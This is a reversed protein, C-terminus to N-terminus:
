RPKFNLTRQVPQDRAIPDFAWRKVQEVMCSEFAANSVGLGQAAVDATTGKPTVTYIIRWKGALFEDQKLQQEYCAKLKGAQATMREDVMQRIQDPDTLTGARRSVSQTVGMGLRTGGTPAPSAMPAPEPDAQAVGDNEATPTKSAAKPAPDSAVTSPKPGKPGPTQVQPAPAPAEAPAELYSIEIGSMDMEGEFVIPVVDPDPWLAYVAACLVTSLVLPVAVFLPASRRRAKAQEDARALARKKEEGPDTAAEEGPILGFCNPCPGGFTVLDKTVSAQCFPCSAM